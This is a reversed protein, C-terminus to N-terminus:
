TLEGYNGLARVLAEKRDLEEVFEMLLKALQLLFPEDRQVTHVVCPMAPHYSFFHMREFDGVLMIGQLQAKYDRPPGEITYMIHRWADPCKIELAERDGSGSNVIGDPSCGVKGDNTVLFWGEDVGWGTLQRFNQRAETELKQGRSMPLTQPPPCAYAKYIRQFILEYMYRRSQESAKGGPQIIRHFESATPRVMRERHWKQSGQAAYITKPM